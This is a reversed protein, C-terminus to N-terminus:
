VFAVVDTYDKVKDLNLYQHSKDSAETLVCMDTLVRSQYSYLGMKSCVAVLYGLYDMSNYCIPL